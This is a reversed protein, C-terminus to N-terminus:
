PESLVMAMALRLAARRALGALGVLFAADARREALRGVLFAALRGTFAFALVLARAGFAVTRFLVGFFELRLFDAGTFTAGTWGGTFIFALVVAL